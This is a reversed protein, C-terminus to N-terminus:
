LAALVLVILVLVVLGAMYGDLSFSRFEGKTFINADYACQTPGTGASYIGRHVYHPLFDVSIGNTANVECKKTLVIYWERVGSHETIPIIPSKWIGNGDFQITFLRGIENHNISQQMLM